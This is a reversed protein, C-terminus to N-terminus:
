PGQREQRASRAAPAARFSRLARIVWEIQAEDHWGRCPICLTRMWLAECRPLASRAFRQFRSLRHLPYYLWTSEIGRASLHAALAPRQEPPCLLTFFNPLGRAYAPVVTVGDVDRLAEVYRRAFRRARLGYSELLPLQTLLLRASLGDMATLKVDSPYAELADVVDTFRLSSARVSSSVRSARDVALLALADRRRRRPAPGLQRRLPEVLARDRCVLAGGGGAFLPKHRGFSLVGFDGWSGLPRGEESEGFAQAADDILAVGAEQCLRQLAGAAAGLGFVHTMIVARTRPGLLPRVTDVSLNFAEGVDCCVPIMGAGLVAEIVSPCNFSCLIVEDTDGRKLARLALTLACTGSSTLLVQGRGGLREAVDAGARALLGWPAEKAATRGLSVRLLQALSWPVPYLPVRIRAPLPNYRTRERMQQRSGADVAPSM